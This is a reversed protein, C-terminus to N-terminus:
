AIDARYGCASRTTLKGPLSSSRRACGEEWDTSDTYDACDISEPRKGLYLWALAGVISTGLIFLVWLLKPLYRCREAPTRVCNFLAGLNVVAVLVVPVATPLLELM